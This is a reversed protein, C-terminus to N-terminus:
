IGFAYEIYDIANGINLYKQRKIDKRPANIKINDVKNYYNGFHCKYDADAMRLINRSNVHYLLPYCFFRHHCSIQLSGWFKM